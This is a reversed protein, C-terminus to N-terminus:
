SHDNCCDVCYDFNMLYSPDSADITLSIICNSSIKFSKSSFNRVFSAALNVHAVRNKNKNNKCHISPYCIQVQTGLMDIGQFNNRKMKDIDEKTLCDSFDITTRYINDRVLLFDSTNIVKNIYVKDLYKFVVKGKIKCTGEPVIIDLALTCFKCEPQVGISQLFWDFTESCGEANLDCGECDCSVSFIGGFVVIVLVSLYTLLELIIVKPIFRM